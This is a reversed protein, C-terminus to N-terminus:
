NVADLYEIEPMAALLGALKPGAARFHESEAHAKAADQNAYLEMVVYTDPEARRKTLQYTLCGPENAKVRAMLERMADEFAEAKGPQVKLTAIVGIM